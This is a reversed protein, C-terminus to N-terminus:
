PLCPALGDNGIFRLIETLRRMKEYADRNFGLEQAKKALVAKDYM